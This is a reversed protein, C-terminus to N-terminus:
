APGFFSPGLLALLVLSPVFLSFLIVGDLRGSIGRFESGLRQPEAVVSGVAEREKSRAENPCCGFVEVGFGFSFVGVLTWALRGWMGNWKGEEEEEEDEM